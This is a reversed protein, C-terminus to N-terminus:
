QVALSEHDGLSHSQSSFCIKRSQNWEVPFAVKRQIHDKGWCSFGEVMLGALGSSLDDATVMPLSDSM